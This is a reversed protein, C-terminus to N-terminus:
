ECQSVRQARELRSLHTHRAGETEHQVMSYGEHDLSAAPLTRADHIFVKKEDIQLTELAADDKGTKNIRPPVGNASRRPSHAHM